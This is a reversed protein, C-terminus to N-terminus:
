YCLARVMGSVNVTEVRICDLYTVGTVNRTGRSNCNCESISSYSIIGLYCRLLIVGASLFVFTVKSQPAVISTAFM